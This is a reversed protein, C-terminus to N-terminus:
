AAVNSRSKLALRMAPQQAAKPRTISAPTGSPTASKAPEHKHATRTSKSKPVPDHGVVPEKYPVPRLHEFGRYAGVRTARAALTEIEWRLFKVMSDDFWADKELAVVHQNATMLMHRVKIAANAVEIQKALPAIDQKRMAKILAPLAVSRVANIERKAAEAAANYPSTETVQVLEQTLTRKGVGIAAQHDQSVSRRAPAVNRDRLSARQFMGGTDARLSLPQTTACLHVPVPM